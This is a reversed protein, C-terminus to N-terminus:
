DDPAGECIWRRILLVEADSLYPGNLPMRTPICRPTGQLKDLLYSRAANGPTVL